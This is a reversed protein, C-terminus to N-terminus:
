IKKLVIKEDMFKIMEEFIFKVDQYEDSEVFVSNYNVSWRIQIKKADNISIWQVTLGKSQIEIKKNKPLYDIQYGEPIDFTLNYNNKNPYLFDIPYTREDLKFPNENLTFIFSPSFYIKDGIKDIANEKNLKIFEEINLNVNEFNNVNLSDIHIKYKESLKELIKKSSLNKHENRYMFAEYGSYNRRLTGSISGDNTNISLYANVNYVSQIKPELSVDKSTGDNRILRGVWNLNQIPLINMNSYKNTVDYLMVDNRNEVGIIVNNFAEYNPVYGIGNSRTSILVPNASIGASKMLAITLMNLEASNGTKSKFIDKLNTKIEISNEDNWNYNDRVYEFIVQAKEDTNTKGEILKSVFDKEFDTRKIHAGFTKRNNINTVVDDWSGGIMKMIGNSEMYGSFSHILSSRYNNINTVYGEAILAPVNKAVYIYKDVFTRQNINQKGKIFKYFVLEKPIKLSYESYKVPISYQFNWEPIYTFFPSTIKITYEIISGEKVNPMTFSVSSHNETQKDLFEDSSYLKTKEVEGNVLNYTYANTVSVSERTSQKRYLPIKVTAYDYGEKTYIKIRTKVTTILNYNQGTSSFFSNGIEYEIVASATSDQKYYKEEFDAKTIKEINYEQGLTLNVYFLIYIYIIKKM